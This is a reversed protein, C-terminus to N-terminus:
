FQQPPRTDPQVAVSWRPPAPLVGRMIPDSFSSSVARTYASAPAAAAVAPMTADTAASGDAAPYQPFPTDPYASYGLIPDSVVPPVYGGGQPEYIVDPTYPQMETDGRNTKGGSASSTTPSAPTYASSASSPTSLLGSFASNTGSAAAAAKLKRIRRQQMWARIKQRCIYILFIPLAIPIVVIAAAAKPDALAVDLLGNLVGGGGSSTTGINVIVKPLGVPNKFSVYWSGASATQSSISNMGSYTAVSGYPVYGKGVQLPTNGTTCTQCTVSFSTVSSALTFSFFALANATTNGSGTLTSGVLSIPYLSGSVFAASATGGFQVCLGYVGSDLQVVLLGPAGGVTNNTFAYDYQNARYDPLIASSSDAANANSSVYLHVQSAATSSDVQLAYTGGATPVNLFLYQDNNVSGSYSYVSGLLVTPVSTTLTFYNLAFGACGAFSQSQFVLNMPGSNMYVSVGNASTSTWQQLVAGTTGTGEYLTMTSGSCLGLNNVSLQLQQYGSTPNVTIIQQTNIATNGYATAGTSATLTKQTSSGTFLSARVAYANTTQNTNTTISVYFTGSTAAPVTISYFMGSPSQYTPYQTWRQSPTPSFNLSMTIAKKYGFSVASVTFGTSGTPIVFSYYNTTGSTASATYYQDFVLATQGYVGSCFLAVVVLLILHLQWYTIM